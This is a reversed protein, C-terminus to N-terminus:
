PWILCPDLPPAPPAAAGGVKQFISNGGGWYNEPPAAAGGIIEICRFVKIIMVDFLKYNSFKQIFAHTKLSKIVFHELKKELIKSLIM